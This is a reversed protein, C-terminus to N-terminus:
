KEVECEVTLTVVPRLPDSSIVTITRSDSGTQQSCDYDVSLKTNEGPQLLTKELHLATNSSNSKARHLALPKKGENSIIFDHNKKENAKIKGWSFKEESFKIRPASASDDATMPPFYEEVTSTVSLMKKPILSDNTNLQIKDIFYGWDNRKSGDFTCVIIGTKNPELEAPIAKM